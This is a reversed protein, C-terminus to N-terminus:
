YIIIFLLYYIGLDSMMKLVIPFVSELFKPYKRIMSPKNEALTVLFELAMNKTEDELTDQSAIQLMASITM